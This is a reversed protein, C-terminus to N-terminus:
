GLSVMSMKGNTHLLVRAFFFEVSTFQASSLLDCFSFKCQKKKEQLKEGNCTTHM